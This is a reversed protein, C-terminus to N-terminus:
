VARILLIILIIVIVTGIGIYMAVVTGTQDSRWVSESM